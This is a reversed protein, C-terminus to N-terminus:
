IYYLSICGSVHRVKLVTSGVNTAKAVLSDNSGGHGIQLLDFRFCFM